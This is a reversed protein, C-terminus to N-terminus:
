ALDHGLPLPFEEMAEEEEEEAKAAGLVPKDGPWLLFRHAMLM